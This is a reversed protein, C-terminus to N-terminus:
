TSRACTQLHASGFIMRTSSRWARGGHMAACCMCDFHHLYHSLVAGDIRMVAKRGDLFLHYYSGRPIIVLRVGESLISDWGDPYCRCVRACVYVLSGVHSTRGHREWLGACFDFNRYNSNAINSSLLYCSLFPPVSLPRPARHQTQAAQAPFTQQSSIGLCQVPIDGKL